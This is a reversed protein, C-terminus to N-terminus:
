IEMEDLVWAVTKKLEDTTKKLKVALDKALNKLIKMSASPNTVFLKEFSEATLELVACRTLAVVSATRPLTPDLFSIEGFFSGKQLKRLPKVRSKDITKMVEVDGELLVFLSHADAGERIIYDGTKHEHLHGVARLSDMEQPSLEILLM